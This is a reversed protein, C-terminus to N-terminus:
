LVVINEGVTVTTCVDVMTVVTPAVANVDIAVVVVLIVVSAIVLGHM